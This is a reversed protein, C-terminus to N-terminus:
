KRRNSQQIDVTGRTNIREELEKLLKIHELQMNKDRM